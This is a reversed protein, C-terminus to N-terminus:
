KGLYYEAYTVGNGIIVGDSEYVYYERGIAERVSMAAADGLVKRSRTSNFMAFLGQAEERSEITITISFPKFSEAREDNKKVKM